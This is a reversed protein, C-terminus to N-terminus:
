QSAEETSSDSFEAFTEALLEFSSHGSYETGTKEDFLHFAMEVYKAAVYLYDPNLDLAPDAPMKHYRHLPNPCVVLNYKSVHQWMNHTAGCFPSYTYRYFDLCGAEDAMSRTDVGSWTGINVETLFDLRQSNLWEEKSKIVPDSKVDEGEAELQAKRHEVELKEQGLGYLIFKRARDSPDAFIWALNIYADAMTRLIVPAVHDNWMSPAMALQTALTVHRALLAGIVEYMEGNSLDISWKKWRENLENRVNTVYSTVLKEIDKLIDHNSM